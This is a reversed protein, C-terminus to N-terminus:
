IEFDIGLLFLRGKQRFDGGVQRCEWYAPCYKELCVVNSANQFKDCLIISSLSWLIQPQKWIGFGWFESFVVLISKHNELVAKCIAPFSARFDETNKNKLKANYFMGQSNVPPQSLYTPVM